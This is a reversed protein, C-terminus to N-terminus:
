PEWVVPLGAGAGDAVTDIAGNVRELRISHALSVNGEADERTGSSFVGTHLAIRM